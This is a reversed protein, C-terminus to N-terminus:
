PETVYYGMDKHGHQRPQLPGTVCWTLVGGRHDVNMAVRYHTIPCGCSMGLPWDILIEGTRIDLEQTILPNHPLIIERPGPDEPFHALGFDSDHGLSDRWEASAVTAPAMAATTAAASACAGCTTATARDAAPTIELSQSRDNM